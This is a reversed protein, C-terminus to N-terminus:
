TKQRNKSMYEFITEFVTDKFLAEMDEWFPDLRASYQKEYLHAQLLMDLKDLQRVLKAEETQGAEFEDWIALLDGGGSHIHTLDEFATRELHHKNAMSIKDLPTMDGIKSEALDHIVAMKLAHYKDIHVPFYDEFVSFLFAMGWSHAAVSETREAAIGSQLWGSRPLQKLAYADMLRDITVSPIHPKKLM